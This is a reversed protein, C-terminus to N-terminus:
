KRLKVRLRKTTENQAADTVTVAVTVSLSRTRKLARRAKASLKVTLTTTGPTLAARLRGITRGLKYRRAQARTISVAIQASANEDLKVTLPIGKRFTARKAKLTLAPAKVDPPSPLPTPPPPPAPPATVAITMMADAAQLGFEDEANFAFTDPGVYGPTPTYVMTGDGPFTVTGHSPDGVLLTIQAGPDPDSCPLDTFVLQSNAEVTATAPRCVPESDVLVTVSATNSLGNVADNVQYRFDDLGVFGPEPTYVFPPGTLTGSRPQGGPPVLFTPNPTLNSCTPTPLRLPTGPATLFDGDPCVPPAAHASAPACLLAGVVGVALGVSRSM